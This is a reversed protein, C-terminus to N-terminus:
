DGAKIGHKLPEPVLNSKMVKGNPNRPLENLIRFVDPRKYEALNEACFAALDDETLGIEPKPVVAALIREGLVEDPFGTVSSDLVKEHEALVERIEIPHVNEGGRLIMDSARGKLEIFGDDDIRGMDGTLHWGDVFEDATKEPNGLYGSVVIPGRIAIEGVEGPPLRDGSGDVVCVEMAPTPLGVSDPRADVYDDPCMTALGGVSETKGYTNCLAANPFADRLRPVVGRPMPASGYAALELSSLDYDATNEREITLIYNTPVGMIYNVRERETEELFRSTSFEDIIVGTGGVPLVAVLSSVLGSVHYLPTPILATTADDFDFSTVYNQAANTLQFHDVPCGKPRGTTGSTYFVSVEDIESPPEPDVASDGELTAYPRYRDGGLVYTDDPLDFSSEEIGQLFEARVVVLRPNADALLYGYERPSLRTNIPVSVAGIRSCALFVELFAPVNPLVVAVRDSREVGADLLGAAVADVRADFEAYTFRDGLEPFVVFERDPAADVADFFLDDLSDARNRYATVRVGDYEVTELPFADTDHSITGDSWSVTEADFGGEGM